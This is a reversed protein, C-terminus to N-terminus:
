ATERVTPGADVMSSRGGGRGRSRRVVSQKRVPAVSRQREAVLPQADDVVGKPFGDDYASLWRRLHPRGDRLIFETLSDFSLAFTRPSLENIALAWRLFLGFNALVSLESWVVAASEIPAAEEGPAMGSVRGPIGVAKCAEDLGGSRRGLVEEALDCHLRPSRRSWSTGYRGEESRGWFLLPLAQSMARLKLLPIDFTWSRFGVLLPPVDDESLGTLTEDLEILIEREEVGPGGCCFLNEVRYCASDGREERIVSLGGM